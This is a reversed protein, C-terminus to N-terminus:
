HIGPCFYIVQFCYVFILDFLFIRYINLKYKIYVANKQKKVEKKKQVVM